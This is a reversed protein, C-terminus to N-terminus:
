SRRVSAPFPVQGTRLGLLGTSNPHGPSRKAGGTEISWVGANACRLAMRLHEDRDRLVTEMAKQETLDLLCMQFLMQGEEDHSRVPRTTLRVPILHGDPQLVELDTIVSSQQERCRRLHDLCEQLWTREICM